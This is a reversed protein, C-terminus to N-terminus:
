MVEAVSQLWLVFQELYMGEYWVHGSKSVEDEAM